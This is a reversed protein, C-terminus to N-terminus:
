TSFYVKDLSIFRDTAYRLPESLGSSLAAVYARKGAKMVSALLPLYDVDGTVLFVSDLADRQVYDLVDVCLNIDVSKTKTRRSPKHFIRPILRVTDQPWTDTIRSARLSALKQEFGAMENLAGAFTSYYHARVLEEGEPLDRVTAESWVFLAAEHTVPTFGQGYGPVGGIQRGEQVNRGETKMSEFRTTLNEGDVFVM